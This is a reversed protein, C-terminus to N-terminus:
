PKYLDHDADQWAPFQERWQDMVASPLTVTFAGTNGAADFIVNGVPDVVMSQGAYDVGNGDTGVRNVGVVFVQNEIARARLLTQWHEARMAPWNAVVVALDYAKHLNRMWGPFRLDYCIFLRIRWGRCMCTAIRDGATYVEHEGAMRFLHRKDYMIQTGDPETWIARNTFGKDSHIALSGLLVAGTRAATGQMWQVAPGDMPQAAAAPTMTFGSAFMEPLVILDPKSEIGEIAAGFAALNAESDEWALAQQILTVTLDSM